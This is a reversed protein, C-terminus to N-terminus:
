REVRVEVNANAESSIAYVAGQFIVAPEWFFLPPLQLKKKTTTVGTVFDVYIIATPSENFVTFGKRRSGEIEAAILTIQETGVAVSISTCTTPPTLYSVIEDLQAQITGNNQESGLGLNEILYILKAQVTYPLNGHTMDEGIQELLQRNLLVNELQPLNGIAM